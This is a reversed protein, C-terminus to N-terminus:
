TGSKPKWIERSLFDKVEVVDRKDEEVACKLFENYYELAKEKEDINFCCFGLSLYIQSERVFVTKRKHKGGLTAEFFSIAESFNKKMKNIIGLFSYLEYDFKKNNLLYAQLLLKEAENYNEKFVYSIALYKKVSFKLFKDKHSETNKLINEFVMMAEDTKKNVLLKLGKVYFFIIKIKYIANFFPIVIM